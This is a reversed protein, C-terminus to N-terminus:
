VEKLEYKKSLDLYRRFILNRLESELRHREERINKERAKLQKIKKQIAEEDDRDVVELSSVPSALSAKIKLTDYGTM